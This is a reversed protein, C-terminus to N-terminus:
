PCTRSSTSVTAPTRSQSDVAAPWSGGGRSRNSPSPTLLGADPEGSPACRRGGLRLATASGTVGRQYPSPQNVPALALGRKGQVRVEPSGGTLAPNGPDGFPGTKRHPAAVRDPVGPPHCNRKQDLDVVRGPRPALCETAGEGGPTLAGIFSVRFRSRHRDAFRFASGGLAAPSRNMRRERFPATSHCTTLTLPRLCRPDADGHARDLEFLDQGDELTRALHDVEARIGIADPM